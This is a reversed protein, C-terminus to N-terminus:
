KLITCSRIGYLSIGQYGVLFHSPDNGWTMCSILNSTYSFKRLLKGTEMSWIKVHGSKDASALM